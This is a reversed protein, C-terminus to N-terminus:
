SIKQLQNLTSKMKELEDEMRWLIAYGGEEEKLEQLMRQWKELLM